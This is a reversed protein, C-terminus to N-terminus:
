TFSNIKLVFFLAECMSLVGHMKTENGIEFESGVQIALSQVHIDASSLQGQVEVDLQPSVKKFGKKIYCNGQSRKRVANM